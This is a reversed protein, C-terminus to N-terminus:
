TVTFAGGTGYIEATNVPGSSGVGGTVLMSGDQLIASCAQARPANMAAALTWQNLGSSSVQAGAFPATVATLLGLNVILSLSVSRVCVEPCQMFYILIDWSRFTKGTLHHM